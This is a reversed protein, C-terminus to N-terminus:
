GLEEGRPVWSHGMETPLTAWRRGAVVPLGPVVVSLKALAEKMKSVLDEGDQAKKLLQKQFCIYKGSWVFYLAYIHILFAHM